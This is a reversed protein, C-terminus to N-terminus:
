FQMYLFQSTDYQMGYLGLILIVFIIVYYVGWRVGLPARDLIIQPSNGLEKMVSVFFIAIVGILVIIADQASFGTLIINAASGGQFNFLIEKWLIKIKWSEVCIITDAILVLIITKGMNLINFIHAHLKGYIVKRHPVFTNYIQSLCMLLAYYIGWVFYNKSLGHWLGTLLWVVCTGLLVPFLKGLTKSKKRINKAAKKIPPFAVFPFMVYDRFWGGLTIHWRRWFEPISKSFYPQKFNEPLEIGFTLSVGLMMDMFGSFDAYLQIAYAIVAIIIFRGGRGAPNDLIGVVLMSLREAIVLKKLVGWLFRQVGHALREYNFTQTQEFVKYFEKIRNFPGEFVTPWYILYLLYRFIGKEAPEDRYVDILYGIAKLTFYSNGLLAFYNTERGLVLLGLSILLGLAFAGKGIINKYYAIIRGCIYTALWVGILVAPFKKVSIGYFFISTVTLIQWQFKNGVFYYMILAIIWIVFFEYSFIDM